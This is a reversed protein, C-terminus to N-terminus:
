RSQANRCGARYSAELRIGADPSMSSSATETAAMWTM